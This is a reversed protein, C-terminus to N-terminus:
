LLGALFKLQAAQAPTLGKDTKADVQGAFAGLLGELARTSPAAAAQDLKACLDDAVKPDTSYARVLDCLSSFSVFVSVTGRYESVGGDKDRVKAGVSPVGVDTTPCSASADDGFAGYGNGCDFAYELGASTDAASPDNANTLSLTFPFGAPSAAPANFTAEPPVNAITVTVTDTATLGGDDTVRVAITRTAPGDIAAASFTATQGATEFTGDNDLDWAYQLSGGEPDTGSATVTVSSGENVSYPGGASVTPPEDVPAAAATTFSWVYDSAMADPPDITDQDTVKDATVTVTCLEGPAFDTAPDLLYSQPGGTVTATHDGSTACSIAYWSDAVDVAESFNITVNTDTAVDTADSLPTTSAVTPAADTVAAVVNVSYSTSGSRSEADFVGCDGHRTGPIAGSPITAQITFTLDGATPDGHTGDDFLPASPGLGLWSLDCNVYLGTSTPNEGPTVAVSITLLTGPSPDLPATTAVASPPTSVVDPGTVAAAQRTGGALVAVLALVLCAGSRLPLRQASM